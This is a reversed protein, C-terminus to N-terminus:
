LNEILIPESPVDMPDSPAIGFVQAYFYREAELARKINPAQRFGHQEGEFTVYAVALGKARVADVIMESQAPPVIEDELGQLVILPCDLHEVHHIPSRQQYLDRREPYPGVLSDLYRSEFKHTDRALAELDAVGYLSAGARFRDRFTLACLTTFGGASGGRIALHDSHVSGAAVLHTAAAVCDDVDAVGWQGDLAKRYARGYGTSGRYNVDVVAFGRSTWFQVALSLHPRAAATPGGHSMVLLPPATRAPGVSTPSTPPYYIAHAVGGDDARVVLAEPVSFWGQDLGLDRPPRVVAVSAGGAPPLDAVAIVPEATASGAVFAVGYGYVQLSSLATFGTELDVIREGDAAAPDVVALHDVGDAAYAIVIRGDALIAYRSQAFVWAPTGIEGRLPAVPEVAPPLETSEPGLEAGDIRYLNWWDSRDSVFWLSGDHHWEPQTISEDRSGAVRRASTVRCQDGDDQLSGLWLETGDWPMDPHNWQLWGLLRGDPSTRPAAVFDPGGVLVMPESATAAFAPLAVIENTVEGGLHRERVCIVWRGDATVVGDAFRDGHAEAPEPTLAVPLQYTDPEAAPDLRYLRQDGWNSFFLSGSHLWWAGGGYEHVRTRASFGDPLVDIPRGGTEHRVIMIRGADEPRLESWWLEEQGVRVDGLGVAGAVVLEATLPSPWSGYPREQVADDAVM